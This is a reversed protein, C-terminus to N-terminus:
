DRIRLQKKSIFGMQVLFTFNILKGELENEGCLEGLRKEASTKDNYVVIGYGDYNLGLTTEGKKGTALAYYEKIM